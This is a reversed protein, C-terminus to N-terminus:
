SERGSVRRRRALLVAAALILVPGEGGRSGTRHVRCGCGGQDGSAALRGSKGADTAAADAVSRVNPAGGSGLTSGDGKSAPRGGAGPTAGSGGSGGAGVFSSGGTSTGADRSPAGGTAVTGGAGPSADASADTGADPIAAGCVAADCQTSCSTDCCVGGTCHGTGCEGDRSCVAGSGALPNCVGGRCFRALGCESDTTCGSCQSVGCVQGGCNQTRAAPCSGTGACYEALTAVGSTCSAARCRTSSGPLVCSQTDTGGCSGACPSGDGPCPTRAGVPAGTVPSCTGAHGALNCAECQGSCASNCCVGDACFGLSCQNSATCSTGPGGKAACQNGAACYDGPVCDADASCQSLCVTAGCAFPACAQTALAPCTPGTGPCNAGFAGIGSSCTPARCQVTAGFYADPPCADSVGDCKEAADCPGAAIRCITSAPQRADAPCALGSGDCKEAADCPGAAARCTYASPEAFCTGLHGPVNCAQCDTASGGGCTTSCCIQDICHTGGACDGDSACSGGCAACHDTDLLAYDFSLYAETPAIIKVVVQGDTM